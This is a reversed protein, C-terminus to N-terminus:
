NWTQKRGTYYEGERIKQNIERVYSRSRTKANRVIEGMDKRVQRDFDAENIKKYRAAEEEIERPHMFELGKSKCIDKIQQTSHIWQGLSYSFFSHFVHNDTRQKHLRASNFWRDVEDCIKEMRTRDDFVGLGVTGYRYLRKPCWRRRFLAWLKIM